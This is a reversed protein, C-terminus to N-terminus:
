RVVVTACSGVTIADSNNDPHCEVTTRGGNGDDNVEITIDKGAASSGVACWVLKCSGTPVPGDTYSTCLVNGDAKPGEYFTAPLASGVGKDGRNCVTAQLYIQDDSSGRVCVDEDSFAGTIDPLADAGAKGQVNQRFNNLGPESWNAKWESTRPIIGDADVNTVTFNQQNWISGSSAWRDLRDRLVRIGQKGTGPHAARCVNDGTAPAVPAACSLGSDALTAGGRCDDDTTCRCYGDTCTSAGPCEADTECVIGPHIPDLAPCGVTVNNNIVIETNDDRDVDAVLPGELWTGSNRYASYLVQGDDGSYV